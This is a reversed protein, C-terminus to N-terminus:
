SPSYSSKGSGEPGTAIVTVTAPPLTVRALQGVQALESAPSARAWLPARALRRSTPTMSITQPAAKAPTTTAATAGFMPGSGLGAILGAALLPTMLMSRAFLAHQKTTTSM